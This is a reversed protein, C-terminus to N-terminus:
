NTTDWVYFFKGDTKVVVLNYLVNRESENPPYYLNAVILFANDIYIVEPFFYYFDWGEKRSRENNDVFDTEWVNKIFGLIEDVTTFRKCNTLLMNKSVDEIINSRELGNLLDTARKLADDNVFKFKFITASSFNTVEYFTTPTVKDDKKM